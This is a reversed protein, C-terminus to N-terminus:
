FKHILSENVQKTLTQIELIARDIIADQFSQDMSGLGLHIRTSQAKLKYGALSM